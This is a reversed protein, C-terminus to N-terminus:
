DLPAGERWKKISQSILCYTLLFFIVVVFLGMLKFINGLDSNEINLVARLLLVSDSKIGLLSGGIVILASCCYVWFVLTFLLIFIERTFNLSSKVTKYQRQRSKDM